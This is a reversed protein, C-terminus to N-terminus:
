IDMSENNQSMFGLHESVIRFRINNQLTMARFRRDQLDRFDRIENRIESLHNTAAMEAHLRSNEHRLISCESEARELNEFTIRQSTKRDSLEKNRDSLEKNREELEKSLRAIMADKSEIEAKLNCNLESLNTKVEEMEKQVNGMRSDCQEISQSLARFTKENLEDETMKEEEHSSEKKKNLKRYIDLPQAGYERVWYGQKNKKELISKVAESAGLGGDNEFTDISFGKINMKTFFEEIRVKRVRIAFNLYFNGSSNANKVAVAMYSVDLDDLMFEMAEANANTVNFGTAFFRACPPEQKSISSM